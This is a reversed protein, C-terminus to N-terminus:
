RPTEPPKSGISEAAAGGGAALMGQSSDVKPKDVERKRSRDSEGELMADMWDTSGPDIHRLNM